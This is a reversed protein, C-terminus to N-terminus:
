KPKGAASTIAWDIAIHGGLYEVARSHVAFSFGSAKWRRKTFYGPKRTEADLDALSVNGAKAKCLIQDLLRNGTPKPARTARCIGRVNAARAVASYTRGPFAALVEARSGNPYVKRLRLIENDSWPQPRPKTIGLRGAKSYVAPKTRRDLVAFIFHYHPYRSVVPDIEWSTWLPHGNPTVGMLQMRRRSREAAEAGRVLWSKIM